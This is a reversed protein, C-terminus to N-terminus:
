QESDKLLTGLANNVMIEAGTLDADEKDFEAVIEGFTKGSFVSASVEVKGPNEKDDSITIQYASM